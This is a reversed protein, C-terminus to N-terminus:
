LAQFRLHQLIVKKQYYSKLSDDLKMISVSAGQMDISTMYNGVFTRYIKVNKKALKATVSNNFLYLEQLPTAELDM